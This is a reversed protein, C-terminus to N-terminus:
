GVAAIVIRNGGELQASELADAAATWPDTILGTALGISVTVPYGAGPTRESTAARIRRCVHEAQQAPTSPLLVGLTDDDIRGLIDTTRLCTGAIEAVSRLAAEATRKGPRNTRGARTTWDVGVLVLSSSPRRAAAGGGIWGQVAREFATPHLTGTVPDRSNVAEKLVAFLSRPQSM